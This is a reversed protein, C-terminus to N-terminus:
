LDADVLARMPACRSVEQSVRGKFGKTLVPGARRDSRGWLGGSQIWIGPTEYRVHHRRFSPGFLFITVIQGKERLKYAQQRLKARQWTRGALLVSGATATSQFPLFSSNQGVIGHPALPRNLGEAFGDRLTKLLRAVDRPEIMGYVLYNLIRRRQQQEYSTFYPELKALNAHKRLFVAKSAGLQFLSKPARAASRTANEAFGHHVEAGPVFAIRHGAKALRLCLDTEDLYYHFGPDFGGISALAKRRIAMNTGELKAVHGHPVDAVFPVDGSQLDVRQGTKDVAGAKWQFSIGNRGRVFGGVAAVGDLEFGKILEALWTPEPVADDDIFAIIDGDAQAIGLNRAVSINPEDFVIMKIKDTYDSLAKCGAPDSVVVIEYNSYLLQSLGVVCRKLLDARHRSVVVVSVPPQTM